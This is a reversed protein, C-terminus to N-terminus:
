PMGNIVVGSLHQSIHESLPFIIDEQPQLRQQLGEADRLKVRVPPSGICPMVVSLLMVYVLLVGLIDLAFV